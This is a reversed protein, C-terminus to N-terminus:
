PTLRLASTMVWGSEDKELKVGRQRLETLLRDETGAYAFSVLAGDSSLADVQFESVLASASLASRISNWSALDAFRVTAKSRTRETSRIVSQRKWAADLYVSSARVADEITAVPATVGITTAGGATERVLRVRYAGAEGSLEALVANKAMVSNAESSLTEWSDSATYFSLAKVYPNLAGDNSQPWANRWEDTLLQNTVVPVMMSLPAQQDIFPINLGHLASRVASPNYLVDLKARYLLTTRKEDQVDYATALRNANDFGYFEAPINERDEPLTLKQVLAQLGIIKAAAIANLEAEQTTSATKDVQIGSITYVARTDAFAPGVSVTLTAIAGFLISFLKM